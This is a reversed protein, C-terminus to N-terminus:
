GNKLIVLPSLIPVSAGVDNIAMVKFVYQYGPQLNNITACYHNSDCLTVINAINYFLGKNTSSAVTVNHNTIPTGSERRSRVWKLMVSNHTVNVPFPVGPITPM